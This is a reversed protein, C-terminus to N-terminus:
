SFCFVVLNLNLRTIKCESLIFKWAEKAFSLVDLCVDISSFNTNVGTKIYHM